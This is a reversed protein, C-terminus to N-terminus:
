IRSNYKKFFIILFWLIFSLLIILILEKPWTQIETVVSLEWKITEWSWNEIIPEVLFYDYTVKKTWEINVEYRPEKVNSILVLKNWEIQKYINYSVAEDIPDWSLISKTKLKTLYLNSIKYIKKKKIIYNEPNNPDIECNEDLEPDCWSPLKELVTLKTDLKKSTEWWINDVLKINIDYDWEKDPALTSWTYIWDKIEKLNIIEDNITVTAETLKPTAKLEIHMNDKKYIELPTIKFSEIEPKKTKITIKLDDTKGVEKLESNLVAANVTYDWDDLNEIKNDFLWENNSNTKVKRSTKTSTLKIIVQHNKTTNWSITIYNNRVVIWDEPSILSIKLKEDLNEEKIVNIKWIWNIEENKSDFVIIEQEWIKKFILSNEFKIKWQNSATFTYLNDKIASPLQIQPDTESTIVVNWKYDQVINWDADKAEIIIDIAKNAMTEEASLKVDFHDVTAAFSYNFSSIISLCFLLKLIKKM